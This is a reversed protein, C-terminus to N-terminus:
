ASEPAFGHRLTNETITVPLLCQLLYDPGGAKTGLGSLRFGGFPQRGVLAGTIGRNIYLNGVRFERKVREIARPSRSFLGGTLAYDGDNALAIAHELGDAMLVALVPGFVEERALRSNPAIGTFLAPGVYQGAEPLTDVTLAPHGEKHGLDIYGRVRDRARRDVLPGIRYRPDEPPGVPLAAIADALRAVLADHVARHAIVRSCASCKQGQFGTASAVIGAVAQDLDASDDVIIANKGGMEAVLHKVSRAGTAVEGAMRHLALGVARSGTFAILDVGAHAALTRGTEGNGPLLHLAGAPVGAEALLAFLRAGCVPARESPKFVVTNGTVLAAAVMGTAIALPFNWPAIVAAVGRPIYHLANVEGPYAAGLRRPVALRRMRAAYYDLFDIAEAVEADAELRHKGVEFLMLAALDHRERGMLRAAQELIAAREGAPTAAWAPAAAVAAAVALEVQEPGCCAVSGVVRGDRSPDHSVIRATVAVARGGIVAEHRGGLTTRVREQAADFRARVAARSFDSLPTNEFEPRPPPPPAKPTPPALVQEADARKGYMARLMSSNATNELLRRVLYAMGPLLEGVPCYARVRFGQRVLAKQLPEAMGHIVQFEYGDPGIGRRRAQHVAVAISRPNHTGLAPDVADVNDLLTATLREFALDTQAKDEWVPVPWGHYRATVVEQDWYAGKVLRVGLRRGRERCWALLADLDDPTEKLYAQLVVGCAPGGAFADEELLGRVAALTLDKLAYHEMDVHVHAHLRQAQQLIPRLANKARELSDDWALPDLLPDLASLKVSVNVRPVPGRGSRGLLPQDPWRPAETALRDLLERYRTRYAEAEPLTLTAEGLLDVSTACGGEWIGKLRPLAADLDAGVIFQRALDAAQARIVRAAVHKFPGGRRMFVVGAAMAPSVSAALHGFYEDALAVLRADDRLVPLVDVFRLLATRFEANEMARAAIRGKWASKEFLAPPTDGMAALLELGIGRISEEAPAPPHASPPAFDTASMLVSRGSLPFGWELRNSLALPGKM